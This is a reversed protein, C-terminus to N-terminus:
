HNNECGAGGEINKGNELLERLREMEKRVVKRGERTIVYDKKRTERSDGAGTIWGKELLTNIAGYLTGAGLVVRGKSLRNINQM